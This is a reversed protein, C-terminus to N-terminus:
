GDTDPLSDSLVEAYRRSLAGERLRTYIKSRLDAVRVEVEVRSGTMLENRLNTVLNNFDVAVDSRIEGAAFGQDVVSAMQGLSRITEAAARPRDAAASPEPTTGPGPRTDSGSAAVEGASGTPEPAASDASVGTGEDTEQGAGSRAADDMAIGAGGPAAGGGSAPAQGGPASQETATAAPRVVERRDQPGDMLVFLEILLATAALVLGGAALKGSMPRRGARSGEAGEQETLSLGEIQLMPEPLPVTRTDEAGGTGAFVSGAVSRKGAVSREGAAAGDASLSRLSVLGGGTASVDEASSSRGAPGAAEGRSGRGDSSPEEASRGEVLSAGDGASWAEASSSGETTSDPVASFVGEATSSWGAWLPQDDMQAPLDGPVDHGTTPSRRAPSSDEEAPQAGVGGEVVSFRQESSSARSRFAQDGSSPRGDVPGGSGDGAYGEVVSFRQESSTRPWSAQDGSGPRGDVGGEAASPRGIAASDEADPRGGAYRGKAFSRRGTLSARTRIVPWRSAVPGFAASVGQRVPELFELGPWASPGPVSAALVRAVEAATPRAKPDAARCRVCLDAVHAPVGPPMAAGADRTGTLAEALVVGLAYVDAPPEGEHDGDAEPALYPAMNLPETPEDAEWPGPWVFPASFVPEGRMARAIGFDLVKVGDPTLFVNAPKVDRHVIGARHAAALAEAVQGCVRAAEAAPLPGRALRDALTEGTLFEMVIYPTRSGFGDETEGYDHITVVRPHTLGAAARAEDRFRRRFAMGRRGTAGVLKIAVTRALVEDWARWVEAMGGSAM